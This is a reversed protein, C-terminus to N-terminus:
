PRDVATAVRGRAHEAYPSSPFAALLADWARRAESTRGLRDLATARGVMVAEDLEGHGHALYDDFSALASVLDGRDLLLRGLTARSVQAERTAPHREQLERHLEIARAYDGRRRAENADDFMAAAGTRPAAAPAPAHVVPKIAPMIPPATIPEPQPAPEAVVVPAPAPAPAALPAHAATTVAARQKEDVSSTELKSPEVGVVRRLWAGGGAEHAAAATVGLVAAAALLWVRMRRRPPAPPRVSPTRKEEANEPTREKTAKARGLAIAVLEASLEADEIGDSAREDAFDLRLQREARCATCRALHAELRAREIESLAGRADKDLLEEPHLDVISM